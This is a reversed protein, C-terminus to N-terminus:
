WRHVTFSSDIWHVPNLEQLNQLLSKDLANTYICLFVYTFFIITFLWHTLSNHNRHWETHCDRRRRPFHYPCLQGSESYSLPLVQCTVTWLLGHFCSIYHVYLTVNLRTLSVLTVTCFCCTNCIETPARARAHAQARTTKSIWSAVRRWVTIQPGAPEVVNKSM